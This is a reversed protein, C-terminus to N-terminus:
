EIPIRATVLTGGGPRSEIEMTGGVLTVREQMGLLGCSTFGGAVSRKTRPEFGVGDDAISVQLERGPQCLAVQLKSARAHRVVNVVAEQTFRFVATEVDEPLRGILPNTHFELKLGSREAERRLYTQLAPQLGLDDLVTPRLDLSISQVQELIRDLISNSEAFARQQREPHDTSAVVHMNVRLATLDQGLQDHLERALFQRESEQVTILRQSLRQLVGANRRARADSRQLIVVLAAIALALLTGFILLGRVAPSMGLDLGGPAPRFALQYTRGCIEFGGTSRLPVEDALVASEVRAQLDSRHNCVEVPGSPDTVDLLDFDLGMPELSQIAELVVDQIQFVASVVGRFSDSSQPELHEIQPQDYLPRHMAIARGPGQDQVLVLPATSVVTGRRGAEQVASLRTADSGLDFGVAEENTEVPVIYRVPFYEEADARPVMEGPGERETIRYGPHTLGGLAEHSAREDALVRPVWSLASLIQHDRILSRAFLDFDQDSVDSSADFFSGVSEVIAQGAEFGRRVAATRDRSASEFAERHSRLELSEVYSAAFLTMFLVLLFAM